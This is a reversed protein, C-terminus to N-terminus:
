IRNLLIKGKETMYYKQQSSTPKDPKTMALLGMELLPKIYKDRFKTRNSLGSLDSLAIAIKLIL